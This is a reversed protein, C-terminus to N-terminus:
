KLQCEKSIENEIDRDEAHEVLRKFQRKLKIGSPTCSKSDAIQVAASYANYCREVDSVDKKCNSFVIFTSDPHQLMKEIETNTQSERLIKPFFLVIALAVLVAGIMTMLKFTM